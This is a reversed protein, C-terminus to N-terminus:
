PSTFAAWMDTDTFIEKPRGNMLSKMDYFTLGADLPTTM